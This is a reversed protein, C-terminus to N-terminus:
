NEHAGRMDSVKKIIGDIKKDEPFKDKLYVYAAEAEDFKGMEVCAEAYLSYVYREQFRDHQIGSLLQKARALLRFASLYKKEYVLYLRGLEANIEWSDPNNLLGEKLLALGEKRKKMRDALWYSGLTYASINRPDIKTAFYFWPLIEKAEEGELHVHKTVALEEGLSILGRNMSLHNEQEHVDKEDEAHMHGNKETLSLGGAHEEFFHGAGGHFYLDAQMIALFSLISKGEGFVKESVSNDMWSAAAHTEDFFM